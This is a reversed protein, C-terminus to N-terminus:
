KLFIYVGFGWFGLSTFFRYMLVERRAAFGIYINRFIQNWEKAQEDKENKDKRGAPEVRYGTNARDLSCPIDSYGGGQKM